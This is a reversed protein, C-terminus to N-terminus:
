VDQFGDLEFLVYNFDFGFGKYNKKEESLELKGLVLDGVRVYPREAKLLSYTWYSGKGSLFVSALM